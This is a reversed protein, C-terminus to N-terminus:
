LTCIGTILFLLYEEAIDFHMSLARWCAKLYGFIYKVTMCCRSNLYRLYPKMLWPLLPYASDKIILLPVILGQVKISPVRPCLNQEADNPAAHLQM